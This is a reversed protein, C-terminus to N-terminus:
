DPWPFCAKYEPKGQIDQRVRFLGGGRYSENYADWNYNQPDLSSGPEVSIAATTIYLDTLEPGGFMVSSTQKAPLTIRREEVGEPDFRIICGDFWVATWVFGDADVTMGDPVGATSPLKVFDRRNSISGNSIDYDYAYITRAASDTHYMITEDPSYGMGNSCGIGEEVVQLSGGPDLRYLKGLGDDLLSGAFIRGGPDAIIDNFRLLDGNITEDAIRVWNEDSNWLLIGDWICTVLGGYKNFALGGVNFGDHIQLNQDTKPDYQFLRGTRIDTWVLLNEGSDWVPGEGVLANVEAIKEIIAIMIHGLEINEM